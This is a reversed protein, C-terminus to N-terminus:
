YNLLFSDIVRPTVSVGYQSKVYEQLTFLRVVLNIYEKDGFSALRGRLEKNQFIYDKAGQISRSDYIYFMNPAHFHLYKSALSRKNLGTIDSFAHTLFLHTEVIDKLNEKTIFDFKKLGNIRKDLDVGIEIMKPAVVNFYFDERIDEEDVNKRREIAAAYSRGILWLKGVIVEPCNHDPNNRCMDYLIDNGFSWRNVANAKQIDQVLIQKKILLTFGGVM